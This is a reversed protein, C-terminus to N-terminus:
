AVGRRRRRRRRESTGSPPSLTKRAYAYLPHKPRHHLPKDPAQDAALVAGGMEMHMLHASRLDIEIFARRKRDAPFTFSGANLYTGDDHEAHAHGFIVQMAEGHRAIRRAAERLRDQVKGKYLNKYMGLVGGLAVFALLVLANGLALATCIGLTAFAMRDLYMRRALRPPALHTPPETMAALARVEDRSLKHREAFDQEALRARVGFDHPMPLPKLCGRLGLWCYRLVLGPTKLGYNIFCHMLMVLPTRDNLDLLALDGLRHMIQRTLMIGLPDGHCLLPHPHANDPDYQSGHEIHVGNLRWFWPEIRAGPVAGDFWEQAEASALEYDHNGPVFIVRGGAAIVRTLAAHFEVHTEAIAQLRLAVPASGGIALDYVDGCLVLEVPGEALYGDILRAFDRGAALGADNGDRRCAHLHFDSACLGKM